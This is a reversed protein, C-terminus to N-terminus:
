SPRRAAAPKSPGGKKLLKGATIPRVVGPKPKPVPRSRSTAPEGSPVHVTHSKYVDDRPVTEDKVFAIQAPKGKKKMYSIAPGINVAISGHSQEVLVATLETKLLVSLIPDAEETNSTNLAQAVLNLSPPPV